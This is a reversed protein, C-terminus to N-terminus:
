RAAPAPNKKEATRHLSSPADESSYLGWIGRGGMPRHEALAHWPNFSMSEGSTVLDGSEEVKQPAIRLNTAELIVSDIRFERKTEV